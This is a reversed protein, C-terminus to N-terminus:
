LKLCLNKNEHRLNLVQKPNDYQMLENIMEYQEDLSCHNFLNIFIELQNAFRNPTETNILPHYGLGKLHPSRMLFGLSTLRNFIFILRNTQQKFHQIKEFSQSEHTLFSHILQLQNPSDNQLHNPIQTHIFNNLTIFFGYSNLDKLFPHTGYFPEFQPHQKIKDWLPKPLSTNQEEIYRAVYDPLAAPFTNIVSYLLSTANLSRLFSIHEDNLQILNKELAADEILCFLEFLDMPRKSNPLLETHFYKLKEYIFKFIVEQYYNENKSKKQWFRKPEQPQNLYEFIPYSDQQIHNDALKLFELITSLPFDSWIKLNEVLHIWCKQNFEIKDSLFLDTTNLNYEKKFIELPLIMQSFLTDLMKNLMDANLFVQNSSLKGIFKDLHKSESQFLRNLINQHQPALSLFITSDIYDQMQVSLSSQYANRSIFKM